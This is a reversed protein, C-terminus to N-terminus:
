AERCTIASHSKGTDGEEVYGEEKGEEEETEGHM